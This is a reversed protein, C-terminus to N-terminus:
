WECDYREMAARTAKEYQECAQGLTARREPKEAAMRWLDITQDFAQRTMARTAEPVRDLCALYKRAFRDCEPVGFDGGPIEVPPGADSSPAPKGGGCAASLLVLVLLRNM